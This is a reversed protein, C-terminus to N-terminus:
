STGRSVTVERVLTSEEQGIEDRATVALHCTGKRLLVDFTFTASQASWAAVHEAPVSIDFSKCQPDSRRGEDDKAAICISVKGVSAAGQDLLALRSAPVTLVLPVRYVNTHEKHGAGFSVETGLPNTTPAVLLAAGARDALREPEPKDLYGERSRVKVGPRHVNVTIRHYKGDGYHDPSYGLSYYSTFDDKVHALAAGLGPTNALFKGGTAGAFGIMSVERNMAATAQLAPVTSALNEPSLGELGRDTSADITYFTVRAANAHHVVESFERSLNFRTAHLRADFKMAEALTPYKAQWEEYLEEGVRLPVGESVYLMAKRGPLGALSDIFRILGAMISRELDFSRENYSDIDELLTRGEDQALDRGAYGFRGSAVRDSGELRSMTRLFYNRESALISGEANKKAMEALTALAVAPDETFSQSERLSRDFSVLAIRDGPRTGETILKRVQEIVAARGNLSINGDDIFVVLNLRQEEPPKPAVPAVASSATPGPPAPEAGRAVFFNTLAVPRGDEEVDFDAPTLGTVSRGHADTVYVEVNVVNVQVAEGVRRPAPRERAWVLAAGALAIVLIGV